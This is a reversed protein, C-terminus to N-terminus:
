LTADHVIMLKRSLLDSYINSAIELLKNDVSMDHKGVVRPVFKSQENLRFEIDLVEYLKRKLDQPAKLLDEYDVLYLKQDEPLSLVYEYYNIWIGMWYNLTDKPYDSWLNESGFDFEKQNLGFEYHGLWNMYDLVFSDKSQLLTFNKHQHLLSCAQSVPERFIIVVRFEKNYKRLASYRLIFNNNKAFYRTDLNPLKFFQQFLLYYQYVKKDIRHVHLSTEDIYQDNLFVKFYYEELAEVSNKGFMVKDGHAREKMKKGSPNYIKKWLSPAMLFPMNSYRTAHFHHPDFLLNTVATTGSRALGSIVLFDESIIHKRKSPRMKEFGFLHRAINYNDLVVTHLLVSWYSYDSSKRNFLFLISSGVVMSLYFYVSRIEIDQAAGFTMYLYIPIWSVISIGAFISLVVLCQVLLRRLNALLFLERDEEQLTTGLIIDVQKVASTALRLFPGKLFVVLGVCFIATSVAVWVYYM